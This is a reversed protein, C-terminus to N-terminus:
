LRILEARKIILTAEYENKKTVESEIIKIRKRFHPAYLVFTEYEGGEGAVNVFKRMKKLESLVKRNIKAGLFRESLGAVRVIITEFGLKLIEELISTEERLWLPNFCWLNLEKCVKQFRTAQYTSRIAGTVVGEVGMKKVRKLGLKLANLSEKEDDLCNVLILPIDLAKAQLKVLEVNPYHFIESEESKPKLSVLCKVEFCEMAKVLALNSDKGGSYLVCVKM